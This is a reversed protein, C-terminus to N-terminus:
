RFQEILEDLSTHTKFKFNCLEIKNYDPVTKFGYYYVYKGKYVVDAFDYAKNSTFWYFQNKKSQIEIEIIM